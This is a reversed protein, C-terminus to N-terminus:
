LFGGSSRIRFSGFRTWVRLCWKKFDIKIIDEWRHRHRGIAKKGESKELETHM